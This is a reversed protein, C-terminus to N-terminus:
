WVTVIVRGAAGDFGNTNALNSAGGGGGPQQAAATRTGGAGGFQSVAATTGNTGGAGGFIGNQAVLAGFTVDGGAGGGWLGPQTTSFQGSAITNQGGDPLGPTNLNAATGAGGGAGWPGITSDDVGGGGGFATILSGFTTNGGNGGNGASGIRGAGGAAITVSVTSTLDSLPLIIEKYAGGGGGATASTTRRPGGGGGGWVQIRAMSGTAPKTWTGNANFTQVDTGGGVAAWTNDGRLFTTNDATGSGLRATPVTGSKLETANLDTLQSGDGDVDLKNALFGDVQSQTYTNALVFSGYAIVDVVDNLSAGVTLVVDTGSTVDVDVGNVLKVGNLYVDAFGGDYGGTVSFTTQAATATFTQRISTGNVASGAAKWATGTYVRMEDAVTNFYLDGAQLASSDNRTSPDATKAGQYVDAFNTIDAVNTAVTTVDASIGAVTNINTANGAVNNINTANGAVANVNAIDTAVIGINTTDGAVATINADNNAVTTVNAAIGAVTTVDPAIAAVTALDTADIAAAAPIDAAIGAVTTVDASIGAVTNINAENANVANINAENANVANINTANAAVANINTANGAVATVDSSIGAVTTVNAQIGAVTSVNGSIGAVTNINTTNGAVTNVSGINTAVTNINASQAIVTEVASLDPGAVPDGSVEDFALVKGRRSTKIPLEMNIDTPDTIPAKLGRDAKEDVQQAFIVVSDLEENLTNAFLDGGTVFDTSREIARAGVLTINDSGTAAAVLTVSGTGDPSIAVTYDTTLTLLTSNKYVDIDTATLIEFSFSYPGVGASGSYVVRRKVDSIPFSV